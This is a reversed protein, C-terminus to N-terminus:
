RREDNFEADVEAAVPATLRYEDGAHRYADQYIRTVDLRRLYVETTIVSAHGLLDRLVLLPDAKTLYLALGADAGTDAVLAAAQRYYGAVLRELTAMAFSHRLRHPYVVPFRPEFRQRIRASTRTFVTPWALFPQGGSRLALLCAGGEPSVLRLREAPSLVAWSRRVGNIRAGDRDPESVQLPPGWRSPPTWAKAAAVARELGIYQHVRALAEYDIWTTRQKNGKAIARGVPFPVPVPSRRWPLPPIEYVLLQTFEQRRLGSALVLGGMAANRGVEWGAFGNDRSGDPCLGALAHLFMRAFDAELYKVTVHRKPARLKATNRMVEVVHDRGMRQGVVYTFPVAECHAEAVAWQYFRSLVTMHLNWTGVDWRASMPGALRYEAYASLAQRLRDRSGFAAVGRDALFALWARMAAAYNRWTRPSPAGSVPLERLWSNVVACPRLGREDEFRLDDDILVPMGERILPRRDVDWSEWGDPSFCALLVAATFVAGGGAVVIRAADGCTPM